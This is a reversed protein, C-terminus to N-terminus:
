LSPGRVPPNPVSREGAAAGSPAASPTARRGKRILIKVLRLSFEDSTVYPQRTSPERACDCWTYTDALAECFAARQRSGSGRRDASPRKSLAL